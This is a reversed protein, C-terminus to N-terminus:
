LPCPPRAPADVPWKFRGAPWPFFRPPSARLCRSIVAGALGCPAPGSISFRCRSLPWRSIWDRCLISWSVGVLLSLNNAPPLLFPAHSLGHFPAHFVVSVPSPIWRGRTTISLNHKSLGRRGLKTLTADHRKEFLTGTPFADIPSASPSWVRGSEGIFRLSAETRYKSSAHRNLAFAIPYASHSAILCCGSM